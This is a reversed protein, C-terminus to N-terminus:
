MSTDNNDYKNMEVIFDKEFLNTRMFSKSSNHGNLSEVSTDHQALTPLHVYAVTRTKNLVEEVFIDDAYREKSSNVHLKLMNIFDKSFLTAINCLYNYYETVRMGTFYAVSISRRVPCFLSLVHMNRYKMFEILKPLYLKLDTALIVDDQLHFRYDDFEIDLMDKFSEFSNIRKRDIHVVADFEKVIPQIRELREECAQITTIM